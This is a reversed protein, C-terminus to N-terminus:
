ATSRAVTHIKMSIRISYRSSRTRARLASRAFSLPRFGANEYFTDDEIAITAQQIYPSIADLPVSTRRVSGHVDYLVVNGTRDYIKTSEAVQRNEFSNISPIPMVAAWIIIGGLFFLLLAAGGLFAVKVWEPVWGTARALRRSIKMIRRM